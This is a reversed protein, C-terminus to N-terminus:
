LCDVMFVMMAVMRARIAQAERVCPKVGLKERERGVRPREM